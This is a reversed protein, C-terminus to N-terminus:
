RIMEAFGPTAVAALVAIIGMVALLEALTFGRAAGSRLKRLRTAAPRIM